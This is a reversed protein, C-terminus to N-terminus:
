DTIISIRDFAKLIVEKPAYKELNQIFMYKLARVIEKGNLGSINGLDLIALNKSKGKVQLVMTGDTYPFFIFNNFDNKLYALTIAFATLEALNLGGRDEVKSWLDELIEATSLQEISDRNEEIYNKFKEFYAM